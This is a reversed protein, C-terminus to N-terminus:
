KQAQRWQKQHKFTRHPKFNTQLTNLAPGKIKIEAKDKPYLKGLKAQKMLTLYGIDSIDFGMLYAAVSDAALPDLSALLWNAKIPTGSSPGDGEMGITGDIISLDPYIHHTLKQLIWNIHWSQHIKSRTSFGGQIAGVLLNKISLTVVVADHTKARCISIVYPAQTYINALPLQISGDAYDITVTQAEDQASYFLKVQKEQNAIQTFGHQKFGQKTNGITAEEAIIIEGKYFPKVFDILAKVSEVPTTALEKHTTVFNIKVVIRDLNQIQQKVKDKLPQLVTLTGQYSQTHKVLSIKSM